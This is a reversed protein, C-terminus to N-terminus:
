EAYRAAGDSGRGEAVAVALTDPQSQALDALFAAVNVHDPPPLEAPDPAVGSSSSTTDQDSM